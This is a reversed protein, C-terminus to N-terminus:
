PGGDLSAVSFQYWDPGMEPRELGFLEVAISFEFLAMRDYALACVRRNPPTYPIPMFEVIDTLRAMKLGPDRGHM